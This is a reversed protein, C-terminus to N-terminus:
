LPRMSPEGYLNEQRFRSPPSGPWIAPWDPMPNYTKPSKILRSVRSSLYPSVRHIVFSAELLGLYRSATAASLGADRALESM